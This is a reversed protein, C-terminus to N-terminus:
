YFEKDPATSQQFHQPKLQLKGCLIASFESSKNNPQVVIIKDTLERTKGFPVHLHPQM